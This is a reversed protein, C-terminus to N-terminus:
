LSMLKNADNNAILAFASHQGFLKQMSLVDWGTLNIRDQLKLNPLVDQIDCLVLQRLTQNDGSVKQTEVIQLATVLHRSAEIPSKEILMRAAAEESQWTMPTSALSDAAMADAGVVIIVFILFCRKM